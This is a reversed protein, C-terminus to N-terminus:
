KQEKKVSYSTKKVTITVTGDADTRYFNDGVFNQADAISNLSPLGLGNKGVSLVATQPRFTEYLKVGYENKSGSRPVKMIKCKSVNIYEGNIEFGTLYKECLKYTVAQGIDGTLLVGTEGYELWIVASANYMNETTPNNLFKDYEGDEVLHNSPSLFYLKYDNGSFGNGYECYEVALGSDSVTESFKRFEDNIYTVPCYPAYVKNVKKYKIIDSLGGCREKRVSTCILYDITKIGFGNLAKLVKINCSRTGNGADILATKGDPFEIITCDGYGVDVFSVRMVGATNKDKVVCYASLYKVPIFFNTTILAASLAFIIAAFVISARQWVSLKKRKGGM